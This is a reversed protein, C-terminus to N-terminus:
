YPRSVLHDVLMALFVLLSYAALALYAKRGFRRHTRIAWRFKEFSIATNPIRAALESAFTTPRRLNLEDVICDIPNLFEDFIIFEQRNRLDDSVRQGVITARAVPVIGRGHREYGFVFNTLSSWEAWQVTGIDRLQIGQPTVMLWPLRYRARLFSICAGIPSLIALIGFLVLFILARFTVPGAALIMSIFEITIACGFLCIVGGLLSIGRRAYYTVGDSPTSPLSITMGATKTAMSWRATVAVGSFPLRACRVDCLCIAADRRDSILLLDSM